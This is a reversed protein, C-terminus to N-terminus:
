PQRGLRANGAGHPSRGPYDVPGPVLRTPWASLQAAAVWAGLPLRSPQFTQLRLKDQPLLLFMAVVDSGQSGVLLREEGQGLTHLATCIARAALFPLDGRTANLLDWKAMLKPDSVFSLAALNTWRYLHSSM